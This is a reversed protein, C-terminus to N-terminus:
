AGATGIPGTAGTAGPATGSPGGTTGAVGVGGRVGGIPDVSGTPVMGLRGPVLWVSTPGSRFSGNSFRDYEAMAAETSGGGRDYASRSIWTSSAGVPRSM